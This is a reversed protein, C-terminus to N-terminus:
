GRLPPWVIRRGELTMDFNRSRPTGSSWTIVRTVMLAARTNSAKLSRPLSMYPRGGIHRHEFQPFALELNRSLYSPLACTRLAEEWDRGDDVALPRRRARLPSV